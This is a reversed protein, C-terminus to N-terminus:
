RDRRENVSTLTMGSGQLEQLEDEEFYDRMYILLPTLVEDWTFVPSKSVWVRYAKSSIEVVGNINFLGTLFEHKSGSDLVDYDEKDIKDQYVPTNRRMQIFVSMDEPQTEDKLYELKYQLAM